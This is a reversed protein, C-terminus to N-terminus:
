DHSRGHGDAALEGGAAVVDYVPEKCNNKRTENNKHIYTHLM